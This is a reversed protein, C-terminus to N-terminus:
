YKLLPYTKKIGSFNNTFPSILWLKEKTNVAILILSLCSGYSTLVSSKM